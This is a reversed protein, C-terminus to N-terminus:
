SKLESKEINRIPKLNVDVLTFRICICNKEYIYEPFQNFRSKLEFRSKSKNYTVSECITVCSENMGSGMFEVMIFNKETKIMLQKQSCCGILVTLLSLIILNRM